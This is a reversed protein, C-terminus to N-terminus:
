DVWGIRTNISRTQKIIQKWNALVLYVPVESWSVWPSQAAEFDTILAFFVATHSDEYFIM